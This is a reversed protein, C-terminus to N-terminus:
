ASSLYPRTGVSAGDRLAIDCPEAHYWHAVSRVEIAAHVCPAPSYGALNGLGKRSYNYRGRRQELSPAASLDSLLRTHSHRAVQESHDPPATQQEEATRGPAHRGIWRRSAVICFLATAAIALAAVFIGIGAVKASLWDRRTRFTDDYLNINQSM